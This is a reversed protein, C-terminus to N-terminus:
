KIWRSGNPNISPWRPKFSPDHPNHCDTCNNRVIKGHWGGVRKGHAGKSWDEVQQFHCQTCVQYPHNISVTFHNLTKLQWVRKPDHCTTCNMVEQSAHQLIIESHQTVGVQNIIKKSEHCDKCTNEKFQSFRKQVFFDTKTKWKAKEYQIDQLLEPSIQDSAMSSTGVKAKEIKKNLVGHHGPHCAAMLISLFLLHIAKMM